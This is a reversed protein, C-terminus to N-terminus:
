RAKPKAPTAAKDHPLRVTPTEWPDPKSSTPKLAKQWAYPEVHAVVTEPDARDIKVMQPLTKSM